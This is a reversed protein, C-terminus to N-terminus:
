YTRVSLVPSTQVLIPVNVPATDRIDVSVLKRAEVDSCRRTGKMAIGYKVDSIIIGVCTGEQTQQVFPLKPQLSRWCHCGNGQSGTKRLNMTRYKEPQEIDWITFCQVVCNRRSRRFSYHVNCIVLLLTLQLSLCCDNVKGVHCLSSKTVFLLSNSCKMKCNGHTAFAIRQPLPRSILKM